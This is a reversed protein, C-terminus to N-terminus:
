LPAEGRPQAAMRRPAASSLARAEALQDEFWRLTPPLGEALTTEPAWGLLARARGIDPQRRRPDDQPLPRHVLRTRRGVLDRVQEALELISFEEPNGLNVVPEALTRADMLALLGAVLDAVYCFSRTQRGTGYITLAEGSLAQVILNSVIRGDDPRMGPGYTNFIRAIRVDTQRTRAHDLCIAEAARKGEDYCARPGTCSVNGHYDETQPHREPDGYVESTSAQVFRARNQAALDLLYHTGLVCTLTTHVPDAQYHPPSAACALNFIRDVREPLRLRDIVDHRVFRFRRDVMLPLVAAVTGTSLNDVCIVREGRALLAACLHAGIFGAGGAVLTTREPKGAEGIVIM